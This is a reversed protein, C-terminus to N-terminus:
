AVRLEFFALSLFSFSDTEKGAHITLAILNM